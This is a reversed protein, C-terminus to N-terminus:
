AQIYILFTDKNNINAPILIRRGLFAKALLAISCLTPCCGMYVVICGYVM